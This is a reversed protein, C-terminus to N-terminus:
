GRITCRARAPYDSRPHDQGAYTVVDLPFQWGSGSEGYVPTGYSVVYRAPYDDFRRISGISLGRYRQGLWYVRFGAFHRLRLLDSATPPAPRPGPGSPPGGLLSLVAAVAAAAALLVVAALLARRKMAIRMRPKRNVLM